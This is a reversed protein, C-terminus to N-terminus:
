FPTEGPVAAICPNCAKRCETTHSTLIQMINYKLLHFLFYICLM